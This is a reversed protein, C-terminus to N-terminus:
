QIYAGRRPQAYITVGNELLGRYGGECRSKPSLRLNEVDSTARSRAVM